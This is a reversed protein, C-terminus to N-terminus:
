VSTSVKSGEKIRRDNRKINAMEEAMVLEKTAAAYNGSSEWNEYLMASIKSHTLRYTILNRMFALTTIINLHRHYYIQVVM